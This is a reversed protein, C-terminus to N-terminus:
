KWAALAEEFGAPFFSVNHFAENALAEAVARADHADAGVVIIRTNQDEMSLRGDNKAEKVVWRRVNFSHPVCGTRPRTPLFAYPAKAPVARNM